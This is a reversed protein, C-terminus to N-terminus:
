VEDKKTACIMISLYEIMSDEQRFRPALNDKVKGLYNESVRTLPKIEVKHWGNDVLIQVYENPRIRNPSGSFKLFNYVSDRYRYINLPDADRIWRTHTNLDVEAVLVAKPKVTQSLQSFTLSIDDFHEFAAQSFVTDVGESSFITVDFDKNCVYNLRDNEGSRTKSLQKYLQETLELDESSERIREMLNEYFENPVSEVLNNIDLANYKKAGRALTLLGIGLDAGPGLELITRGELGGREGTYEELVSQWHDVVSFDYEIARSFEKISFTRPNKYGEVAHRIKNLFLIGLGVFSFFHNHPDAFQITRCPRM